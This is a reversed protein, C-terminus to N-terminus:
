AGPIINESPKDKGQKSYEEEARELTWVQIGKIQADM